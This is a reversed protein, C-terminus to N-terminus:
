DNRRGSPLYYSRQLLTKHLILAYARLRQRGERRRAPWAGMVGWLVSRLVMEVVTFLRLIHLHFPGFHKYFLYYLSQQSVVLMETFNARISHGGIHVVESAPFYVVDWGSQHARMCWDVDEMCMFIHPDLDGTQAAAERRIMLCAGTVWGVSRTTRYDWVAFRFFPFVTHLLLKRGIERLPTPSRGCSLELRGDPRVLRPGAIGIGPRARMFDVLRGLSGPPPLTDPNLLLMFDGAAERLALNNARSFGLNEGSQLLRAQPFEDRIMAPSADTSANDVVFLEWGASREDEYVLQLCDRLVSGSNWNVICISLEPRPGRRGREAAAGTVPEM